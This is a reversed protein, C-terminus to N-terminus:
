NKDMSEDIIYKIKDRKICDFQWTRGGRMVSERRCTVGSFM